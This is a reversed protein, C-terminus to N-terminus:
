KSGIIKGKTQSALYYDFAQALFRDRDRIARPEVSAQSIHKQFGELVTRNTPKEYKRLLALNDKTEEILKLYFQVFRPILAEKGEVYLSEVFLYASVAIARSSIVIAKDGFSDDM